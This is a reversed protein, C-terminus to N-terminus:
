LNANMRKYFRLLITAFIISLFTSFYFGPGFANISLNFLIKGFFSLLYVEVGWQKFYWIGVCAIFNAAVLIGFIAPMFAGLKKIQPSFIQPFALLVSLYGIICIISIIRPRKL